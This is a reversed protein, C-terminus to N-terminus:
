VQSSIFRMGEHLPWGYNGGKTILNIEEWTYDGVDASYLKGTTSDFQFRWPNRLGYAWIAGLKGAQGYFPNDTPITGDPNVRLIKGHPNSLIQSNPPYGNDGVAFYLKGDPGFQVSGGVHLQQSPSETEFITFPGNIGVDTSADYRVLHNLLDQGTYYFYVFHNKVGFSPDFAIGILGRDGSAVSNFKVFPQSLLQGNKIIKVTGTRELVFIRGDPAIEFGSPGNLGSGVVLSTQFGTPPALYAYGTPVVVCLLAAVVVIRVVRLQRVKNKLRLRM